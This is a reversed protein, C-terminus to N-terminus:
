APPFRGESVACLGQGAPLNVASTRAGLVGVLQAPATLNVTLYIKDAVPGYKHDVPPIGADYRRSQTRYFWYVSDHTLDPERGTKYWQVNNM